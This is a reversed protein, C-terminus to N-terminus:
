VSGESSVSSSSSVYFVVDNVVSGDDDELSFLDLNADPNVNLLTLTMHLM